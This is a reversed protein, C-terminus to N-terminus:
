VLAAAAASAAQQVCRFRDCLDGGLIPEPFGPFNEAVSGLILCLRHTKTQTKNM